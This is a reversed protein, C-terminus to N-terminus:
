YGLEGLLKAVREQLILTVDTSFDSHTDGNPSLGSSARDANYKERWYGHGGVLKSAQEPTKGEVMGREILNWAAWYVAQEYQKSTVSLQNEAEIEIGTSISSMSTIHYVYDNWKTLQSVKGYEDMFFQIGLNGACLGNGIHTIPDNDNYKSVTFHWVLQETLGDIKHFPTSGGNCVKDIRSSDVSEVFDQYGKSTIKTADIKEAIEPSVDSAPPEEVDPEAPPNNLNNIRSLIDAIKGLYEPDTTYKPNEDDVLKQLFDNANNQLFADDYYGKELLFEGFGYFGDKATAFKRFNAKVKVHYKGNDLQGLEEVIRGDNKAREYAEQDLYEQTIKQYSEGDWADTNSDKLGHFNNASQALESNGYDSELTSMALVLDSPVGYREEVEDAYDRYEEVFTRLKETPEQGAEVGNEATEPEEEDLKGLNLIIIHGPMLKEPDVNNAALLDAVDGGSEKAIAFYTDGPKIVRTEQGLNLPRQKPLLVTKGAQIVADPEVDNLEALMKVSFGSIAAIDEVPIDKGIDIQMPLTIYIRLNQGVEITQKEELNNAVAISEIGVDRMSEDFYCGAIQELTEGNQVVHTLRIAQGGSEYETIEADAINPDIQCKEIKESLIPSENGDDSCGRVAGVVVCCGILFIALKGRWGIKRRESESGRIYGKESM